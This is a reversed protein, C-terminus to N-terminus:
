EAPTERTVETTCNLFTNGTITVLDVPEIMRIGHKFNHFTNDRIDIGATLRPLFVGSTERKGANGACTFINNAIRINLDKKGLKEGFRNKYLSFGRIARTVTNGEIVINGEEFINKSEYGDVLALGSYFGDITNDRIVSGCSYGEIVAIGYTGGRRIHTYYHNTSYPHDTSVKNGTVTTNRGCIIIGQASATVTNGTVETNYCAQQVKLGSWICNSAVCNRIFCDISPIGGGASKSASRTINFPHTGGNAECNEFGSATSSIMKFLNYNSFNEYVKEKADLIALLEPSLRATVNRVVVNRNYIGYYLSLDPTGDKKFSEVSTTFTINEVLADKCFRMRIPMHCEATGEVAFDRLTVNKILSLKSVTTSKRQIFDESLPPPERTDDKFYDPFLRNKGTTIKRGDISSVVVFEGFFCNSKRTRGLVWGTTYNIGAIGERIMSNRQGRILIDDGPALKINERLLLTNSFDAIDEALPIQKGEKGSANFLVTSLPIFITAKGSGQLTAGTPLRVESLHFRGEPVQVVPSDAFAKTLAPTWDDGSKHSAYDTLIVPKQPSGTGAKAPHPLLALLVTAIIWRCAQSRETNM